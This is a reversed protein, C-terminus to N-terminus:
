DDLYTKELATIEDSVMALASYMGVLKMYEDYTRANGMALSRAIQERQEEIRKNLSYFLTESM